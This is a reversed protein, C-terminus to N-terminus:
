LRQPGPFRFLEATAILERAEALARGDLTGVGDDGHGAAHSVVDQARIGRDVRLPDRHDGVTDVQVLVAAGVFAVDELTVADIVGPGVGHEDTADRPLLADHVQELSSRYVKEEPNANASGSAAGVLRFLRSEDRVKEKEEDLAKKSRERVRM